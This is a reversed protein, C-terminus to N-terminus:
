LNLKLKLLKKVILCKKEPNYDRKKIKKIRILDDDDIYFLFLFYNNKIKVFFDYANIPIIKVLELYKLDVIFIQNKSYANFM